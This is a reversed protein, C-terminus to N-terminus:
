ILFYDDAVNQKMNLYCSSMSFRSFLNFNMKSNQFKMSLIFLSNKTVSSLNALGALQLWIGYTKMFEHKFSSIWALANTISWIYWLVRFIRLNFHKRWKYGRHWIVLDAIIERGLIWHPWWSTLLPPALLSTSTPPPLCSFTIVQQEWIGHARYLFLCPLPCIPYYANVEPFRPSFGRGQGWEDEAHKLLTQQFVSEM